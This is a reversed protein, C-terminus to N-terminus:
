DDPPLRRPPHDPRAGPIPREGASSRRRSFDLAIAGAKPVYMAENLLGSPPNAVAFVGIPQM